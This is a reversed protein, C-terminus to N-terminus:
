RKYPFSASARKTLEKALSPADFNAKGTLEHDFRWVLQGSRGDYLLLHSVTQSPQIEATPDDLRIVLSVVAPLPQVLRTQGSLVADVGLVRQLEETSRYNLSDYPIGAKQLRENTEASSQFQVVYKHRRKLQELLQGQLAYALRRCEQAQQQLLEAESTIPTQSYALEAAWPQEIQVYFPLV